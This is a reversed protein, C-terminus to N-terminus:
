LAEALEERYKVVPAVLLRARSGWRAGPPYVLAADWVVDKMRFGIRRSAALWDLNAAGGLAASLKRDRDWFHLARRDAVYGTQALAPRGWDTDLVPEWVIFVRVHAAGNERLV